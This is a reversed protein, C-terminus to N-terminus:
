IFLDDDEKCQKAVAFSPLTDALTSAAEIIYAVDNVPRYKPLELVSVGRGHSPGNQQRHHVAVLLAYALQAPPLARLLLNETVVNCVTASEIAALAGASVALPLESNLKPFVQLIAERVRVATSSKGHTTQVTEGEEMAGATEAVETAQTFNSELSTSRECLHLEPQLLLDPVAPVACAGTSRMSPSCAHPQVALPCAACCVWMPASILEITARASCRQTSSAANCFYTSRLMRDHLDRLRQRDGVPTEADRMRQVEHEIIATALTFASRPALQLPCSEGCVREHRVADRYLKFANKRIESAVPDDIPALTTCIDVIINLIKSMKVQERATLEGMEAAHLAAVRAAERETISQAKAIGGKARSGPVTGRVARLRSQRREEATEPRRRSLEPIAPNRDPRMGPRDAHQTKDDEEACAKERHTAVTIAHAIGCTCVLYEATRELSDVNANGCGGCVWGRASARLTTARARNAALEATAAQQRASPPKKDFIGFCCEESMTSRRLRSMSDTIPTVRDTFRYYKGTLGIRLPHAGRQVWRIHTGKADVLPRKPPTSAPANTFSLTPSPAAHNAAGARREPDASQMAYTMEKRDTDAGSKCKAICM